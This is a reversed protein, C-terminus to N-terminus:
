ALDLKTKVCLWLLIIEFYVSSGEASIPNLATSSTIVAFSLLAKYSLWPVTGLTEAGPASLYRIVNVIASRLSILTFSFKMWM